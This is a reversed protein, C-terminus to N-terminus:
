ESALYDALPGPSPRQHWWWASEPGIRYYHGLRDEEDDVTAERFTDDAHGVREEIAARLGSSARATFEAIYDRSCLDNTYDDVTATYTNVEKTLRLWVRVERELRAHEAWGAQALAVEIQRIEIEDTVPCPEGM